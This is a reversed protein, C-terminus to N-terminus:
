MAVSSSLLRSLITPSCKSMIRAVLRPISCSSSISGAPCSACTTSNLLAPFSAFLITSGSTNRKFPFAPFISTYARFFIFNLVHRFIRTQFCVMGLAWFVSYYAMSWGQEAFRVVNRELLKADRDKKTETWTKAPKKPSGVPSSRRSTRQRVSKTSGDTPATAIKEGITHGNAKVRAPTGSPSTPRANRKAAALHELRWRAIPMFFFRMLGERFLALLVTWTAVFLLDKPGKTYYTAHYYSDIDDPAPVPYSIGVFSQLAPPIPIGAAANVIAEMRAAKFSPLPNVLLLSCLFPSVLSQLPGSWRQRQVTKRSPANLFIGDRAKRDTTQPTERDRDRTRDHLASGEERM